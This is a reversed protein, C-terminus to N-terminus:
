TAAALLAAGILSSRTGLNAFEHHLGESVEAMCYERALEVSEDIWHTQGLAVSGGVVIVEPDWLTAVAAFCRALADRGRDRIVLAREDGMSARQFLEVPSRVSSHVDLPEPWVEVLQRVLSLGGAFSEVDGRRGCNCVPGTPDLVLHGVEGATGHAGGQRVGNIVLGAGVGSSVTVYGVISRGAGAGILAEAIAAAAADDELLVECSFADRLASVIPLPGWAMNHLRLIVGSEYDIPGPAVCGIKTISDSGAARTLTSTIVSLLESPTPPTAISAVSGERLEGNMTSIGVLVTSAGIDIAGLVDAV